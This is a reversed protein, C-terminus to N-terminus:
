SHAECSGKLTRRCISPAMYCDATGDLTRIRAYEVAEAARKAAYEAERRARDADTAAKRFSKVTWGAAKAGCTAGFYVTDGDVNGDEDLPALKVTSKLDSRGCHDCTTVDDTTGLVRYVLSSTTEM